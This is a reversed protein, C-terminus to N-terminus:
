CFLDGGLTLLVITSAHNYLLRLVVLSIEEYMLFERIYNWALCKSFRVLRLIILLNHWMCKYRHEEVTIIILIQMNYSIVIFFIVQRMSVSGDDHFYCVIRGIVNKGHKGIGDYRIVYYKKFVNLVMSNHCKVFNFQIDGHSISYLTRTRIITTYFLFLSLVHVLIGSLLQGQDPRILAPNVM